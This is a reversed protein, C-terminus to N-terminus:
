FRCLRRVPHQMHEVVAVGQLCAGCMYLLLVRHMCRKCCADCSACTRARVTKDSVDLYLVATMAHNRHYHRGHYSTSEDHATIWSFIQPPEAVLDAKGVSVRYLQWTPLALRTDVPQAMLCPSLLPHKLSAPVIAALLRVFLLVCINHLPLRGSTDTCRM